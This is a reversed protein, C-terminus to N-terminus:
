APNWEINEFDEIFSMRHGPPFYYLDGAGIISESGDALQVRAKGKLVYGWHPCQCLDEPLGSWALAGGPPFGGPAVEFVMACGAWEIWQAAYDGIRVIPIDEKKVVFGDPSFFKPM